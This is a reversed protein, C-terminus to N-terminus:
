SINKLIMSCMDMYQDEYKAAFKQINVVFYYAVFKNWRTLICKPTLKNINQSCYYPEDQFNVYKQGVVASTITFADNPPFSQKETKGQVGNNDSSRGVFNIGTEVFDVANSDLSKTGTVDFLDEIKFEQWTIKESQERRELESQM